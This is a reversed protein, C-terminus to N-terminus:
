GIGMGGMIKYQLGTDPTFGESIAGALDKDGTLRAVARAQVDEVTPLKKNEQTTSNEDKDLDIGQIAALFKQKRKEVKQMADLTKILEPM